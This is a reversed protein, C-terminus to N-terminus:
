KVEGAAQAPSVGSWRRLGSLTEELGALESYKEGRRSERDSPAFSLPTLNATKREQVSFFYGRVAPVAILHIPKSGWQRAVRGLERALDAKGIGVAQWKDEIKGVTLICANKGGVTVPFLWAGTPSALNDLNTATSRETLAANGIVRLQYPRGLDAQSPTDEPAFGYRAEDGPPIRRLMAQLGNRAAESVVPPAEEARLLSGTALLILVVIGRRGWRRNEAENM